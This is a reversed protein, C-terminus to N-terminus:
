VKLQLKILRRRLLVLVRKELWEVAKEMDGDTAKLAEKCDMMGADTMERLKKIVRKSWILGYL